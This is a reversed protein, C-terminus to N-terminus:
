KKKLWLIIAGHDSAGLGVTTLLIDGTRGAGADNVIGAFSFFDANFEYDPVALLDTNTTADWSLHANFGNLSGWVRLLSAKTFAPSYTSADVIVTDTEEGSGDGDIHLHVILNKPGDQLTQTTISNAM